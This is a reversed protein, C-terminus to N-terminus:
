PDFPLPSAFQWKAMEEVESFKFRCKWANGGFNGCVYPDVAPDTFTLPAHETVYEEFYEIAELFRDQGSPM